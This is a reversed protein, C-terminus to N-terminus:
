TRIHAHPDSDACASASHLNLCSTHAGQAGSGELRRVHASRHPQQRVFDVVVHTGKLTTPHAWQTTDGKGENQPEILATAGSKGGGGEEKGMEMTSANYAGKNNKQPRQQTHVQCCRSPAKRTVATMTRMHPM